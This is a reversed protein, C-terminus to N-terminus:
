STRTRNSSNHAVIGNAVFNHTGDITADFVEHEGLSSIAVIEDWLVDSNALDHLWADGPSRLAIRRCRESSLGVQVLASGCYSMGLRDALRRADHGAMRAAVQAARSGVRRPVIDVNPNSQWRGSSTSTDTSFM